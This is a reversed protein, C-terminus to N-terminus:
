DGRLVFFAFYPRPLAESGEHFHKGRGDMMKHPHHDNILLDPLFIIIVFFLILAAGLYFYKRSFYFKPVLYFYSIYFVILLLVYSLFDRQFPPINFLYSARFFDPSFFIPLLLFLVSGTVFLLCQRTKNNMALKIISDFICVIGKHRFFFLYPGTKLLSKM